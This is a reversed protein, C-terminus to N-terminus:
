PLTLLVRNIFLIFLKFHRIARIKKMFLVNDHWKNGHSSTQEDPHDFDFDVYEKYWADVAKAM